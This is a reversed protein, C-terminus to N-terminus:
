AEDGQRHQRFYHLATLPRRVSWPDVGARLSAMVGAAEWYNEVRILQGSAWPLRSLDNRMLNRNEKVAITTIGQQCAALTPLGVCGDPIVLCSVDEAAMAGPRPYGQSHALGPGHQRRRPGSHHGLLEPSQQLGRYVCQMLTFSIAEAAMRPDVVGPDDNIVEMCEVMPGHAAPVGYLATVAHTLMAEVGGWPNVMDGDSSFYRDYHESQVLIPSTIAVADYQGAHRNLTHLLPELDRVTGAARGSPRYETEVTPGHDLRAVIPPAMGYSLRAANVANIAGNTFLDDDHAGIVVLVRNNRVPSLSIQGQMFQALASGEVYWCNSPMQIIDSANVVNPHTILRDCVSALVHAAPTADGAHGGIEAGIGTPVVMVCNFESQNEYERRRFRLVSAPVQAVIRPWQGAGELVAVECEIEEGAQAIVALRVPVANDDDLAKKIKGELDHFMNGSSYPAGVQLTTESVTIM